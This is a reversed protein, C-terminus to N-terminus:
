RLWQAEQPTLHRIEPVENIPVFRKVPPEYDPSIENFDNSQMVIKRQFM